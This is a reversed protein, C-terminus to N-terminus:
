HRLFIVRNENVFRLEKEAMYPDHRCDDPIVGKYASAADNIIELILPSEDPTCKRIM